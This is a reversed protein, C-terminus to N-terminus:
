APKALVTRIALRFPILMLLALGLKVAYDGLGLTVWPVATFAFAGAFFVATDLASGVTSSALPATWWKGVNRLRDFLYVDLLQATLFAAGSAAAIRPTALFASMVVAILFGITVVRRAASAGAARNTLDTILFAFPYTLAGWTLWDNIPHQVLVNSAVVVATMAAIPLALRNM